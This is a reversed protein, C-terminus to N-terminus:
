VIFPYDIGTTEGPRQGRSLRLQHENSRVKIQERAVKTRMRCHLRAAAASPAGLWASGLWIEREYGAALCPATNDFLSLRM